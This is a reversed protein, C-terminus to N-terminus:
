KGSTNENPFANVVAEYTSEDVKIIWGHRSGTPPTNTTRTWSTDDLSPASYMHYPHNTTAYAETYLYMKSGDPSPFVIPAEHWESTKTINPGPNSYPGTLSQSKAIRITKGYKAHEPWREDKLVAYYTNNQKYIVVDITACDADDGTFDFLRKSETFTKFDKTLCYFTRRSEWSANGSLGSVGAHWTIMYQSSAEDYFLKPAGYWESNVYTKGDFTKDTLSLAREPLDRHHWTILDTTYWLILHHNGTSSVGLMYWKGDGGKCINPHGYYDTNIQQADNLETWDVGDRSVAYYLRGYNNMTMHAFIYGGGEGPRLNVDSTQSESKPVIVDVDKGSDCAALVFPAVFAFLLSRRLSSSFIRDLLKM